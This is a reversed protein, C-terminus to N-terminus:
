FFFFFLFPFRLPSPRILPAWAVALYQREAWLDFSSSGCTRLELYISGIMTHPEATPWTWKGLRCLDSLAMTKSFPWNGSFALSGLDVRWDHSCPEDCMAFHTPCIRSMGVETLRTLAFFHLLCFFLYLFTPRRPAFSNPHAVLSHSSERIIAMCM